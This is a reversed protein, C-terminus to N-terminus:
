FKLPPIELNNQQNCRNYETGSRTRYLLKINVQDCAAKKTKTWKVQLSLHQYKAKIQLIAQKIEWNMGWLLRAHAWGLDM